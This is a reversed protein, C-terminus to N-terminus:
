WQESTEGFGIARIREWIVVTEGKPKRRNRGVGIEEGFGVLVAEKDCRQKPEKKDLRWDSGNGREGCLKCVM